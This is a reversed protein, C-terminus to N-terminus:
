LWLYVLMYGLTALGHGIVPAWLSNFRWRMWGWLLGAAFISLIIELSILTFRFFTLITALHYSTYFITAVLIATWPRLVGLLRKLAYGRWFVEEVVGNFVIMFVVIAWKNSSTAGWQSLSRGINMLFPAEQFMFYGAVTFVLIFLGHGIGILFSIKLNCQDFGLFQLFAKFGLKEFGIKHISPLLLCCGIHYLLFVLLVSKFITLPLILSLAAATMIILTPFLDKKIYKASTGAM